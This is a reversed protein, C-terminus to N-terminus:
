ADFDGLRLDVGIVLLRIAEDVPVRNIGSVLETDPAAVMVSGRGQSSLVLERLRDTGPVVPGDLGLWGAETTWTWILFGDSGGVRLGVGQPAVIWSATRRERSVSDPLGRAGAGPIILVTPFPNGGRGWGAMPIIPPWGYERRLKVVDRCATAIMEAYSLAQQRLSPTAPALLEGELREVLPQAETQCAAAFRFLALDERDGDASPKQDGSIDILADCLVRVQGTLDGGLIRISATRWANLIDPWGPGVGLGMGVSTSAAVRFAEAAEAFRGVVSLGEAEAFLMTCRDRKSSAEDAQVRLSKLTADDDNGPNSFELRLRHAATPTVDFGLANLGDRWITLRQDGDPHRCGILECIELIQTACTRLQERSEESAGVANECAQVAESISAAVVEYDKGLNLQAAATGVWAKAALASRTAPNPIHDLEIRYLNLARRFDGTLAEFQAM